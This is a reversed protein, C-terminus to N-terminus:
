AVIQKYLDVHRKAVESWQVLKAYRRAGEELKSRLEKDKLLRKIKRRLDTVDKFTMLAGQKEKEKFPPLRSALVAKGHSLAMLLAGSETAFRSPYVVLDMAGYVTALKEDAVYGLWQCRGPLAALSKQKLNESYVTGPGAFWGGGILVAVKPVKLMAEFLVELGKYESIFGCYGVIPARPDIGLSRKAEEASPIECPKTGHPIVVSPFGFRRACFENHVIVKDSTSAIVRDVDWRIGIAHMTTIIPKGLRKLAAYFGGELGQYLGYEHEVHILDIKDVPISDVINQLMEPTKQGFRPLRVIYSEVDLDALAHVLNETYTFIGCKVMWSTIMAVKVM